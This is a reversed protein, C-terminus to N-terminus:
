KVQALFCVFSSATTQSLFELMKLGNSCPPSRETCGLFFGEPKGLVEALWLNKQGCLGDVGM